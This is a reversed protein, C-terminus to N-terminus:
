DEKNARLLVQVWCVGNDNKSTTYLNEVTFNYKAKQYPLYDYTNMYSDLFSNENWYSKHDPDQFAGRGDTSPVQIDVTAGHKLVRYIQELTYHKDEIFQLFDICRMMDVSSEDFQELGEKNFDIVYDVGDYPYKDIGKFGFTKATGCGLDLRVEPFYKDRVSAMKQQLDANKDSTWTNDGWRYLYLMKPIHVIKSHLFMRLIIDYDDAYILTDDYGGLDFLTSARFARVHNPMLEWYHSNAMSLQPESGYFNPQLGEAYIQGQYETERYEWYPAHYLHCEGEDTVETCNSYVMGAEPEEKFKKVVEQLCDNTLRDDHDLEVLYEGSCRETCRKKMKGINGCNDFFFLKIRKDKKQMKELIKRTKAKSGDDCIVWEWNKYKQSKVSNYVTKILNKKTNYTPTFISVLNKKYTRKKKDMNIEKIAKLGIKIHCM